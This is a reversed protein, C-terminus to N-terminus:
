TGVNTDNAHSNSRILSDGEAKAMGLFCALVDLNAAKAMVELKATM